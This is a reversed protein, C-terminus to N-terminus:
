TILLSDEDGGEVEDDFFLFSLIFDKIHGKLIKFYTSINFTEYEDPDLLLEYKNAEFVMTLFDEPYYQSVDLYVEDFLFRYPDKQFTWPNKSYPIYKYMISEDNRYYRSFDDDERIKITMFKDNEFM